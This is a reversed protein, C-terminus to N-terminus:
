GNLDGIRIIEFFYHKHCEREYVTIKFFENIKAYVKHVENNVTINTYEKTYSISQYNPYTEKIIPKLPIAKYLVYFNAFYNKFM